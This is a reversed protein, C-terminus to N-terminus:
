RPLETNWGPAMVPPQGPNLGARELAERATANSNTSALGYPIGARGIADVADGIAENYCDCPRLDDSVLMSPRDGDDYDSTGPLYSGKETAISGWIGGASAIDSSSSSGGSSSSSSGVAGSSGGSSSGSSGSSSSASSSSSSAGVGGAPGGRAYYQDGSPDTTVIYAHYVPIGLFVSKFRVEIRCLGKRDFWSNPNGGVYGYTNLGGRLGIPDSEIYRGLTPDYDRFYNYHLGSEADAQQGPFRINASRAPASTESYTIGFPTQVRDWVVLKSADVLKQPTGLHDTMIYAIEGPPESEAVFRVADASVTGETSAEVSVSGSTGANFTFSGMSLWVGGNATQDIPVNTSGAAHNVTYSVATDRSADAMYKIFVEYDAAAPINPVWSVADPPGPPTPAPTEVVYIADASVSGNAQDSLDVTYEQSATYSYSGLLTWFGEGQTQDIIVPNAGTDDNVTYTADTARGAGPVWKVYIDHSGSTTPTFKWGATRAASASHLLRIADPNAQRGDTTESTVEIKNDGGPALLYPTGVLRWTGGNKYSYVIQNDVGEEHYINWPTVKSAQSRSPWWGYLDYYDYMPIAPTWGASNPVDEGPKVFIVADAVIRRGGARDSLEVRHNQGPTLNFTGLFNWILQDVRQDMTVTTEGDDHFVKYKANFAADPKTVWKTYLNYTDAEPVNLQWIARNPLAEVPVVYIADARVEKIGDGDDRLEIDHSSAADFTYVGLPVWTGCSYCGDWQNVTVISEGGTHHIRYSANGSLGPGNLPWRAFVEYDGTTPVDVPWVVGSTGDGTTKYLSDAGWVDPDGTSLVWGGTVIVGPDTNDVVISEPVIYNTSTLAYSSGIAFVSNWTAVTWTIPTTSFDADVNDIATAFPPVAFSGIARFNAGYDSRNTFTFWVGLDSYNADSNDVIISTPPNTGASREVFDVGEFNDGATSSPWDGIQSFGTDSNDIQQGGPPVTPIVRAHELYDAGEYGTGATEASWTGTIQAEADSNDVMIDTITGGGGSTDPIVQAIMLGDLYIYEEITAGAGSSSGLLEGSRGYHFHTIVGGVGLGEKAVREGQANYRYATDAIGGLAMETVRNNDNYTYDMDAASGKDDLSMNGAATYALGRTDSGDNVSLLRNSASDYSYTETTTTGDIVQRSTRNSVADYGYTLDGYLGTANTLRQLPDYTFAQNRAADLADTIATINGVADYGYTLDQVDTVGDGATISGLRYDQDYTYALTIGNGLDLDLVPGFPMYTIADAVTVPAALADTQTQIKSVRGLSDRTYSVIRGSPYTIESLNDALDYAYDTQYSVGDVVRTERAVNGRYDYFYSTSGTEDTLSTLRGIGHNGGTTDDYSYAVDEAPAAPFTKATVRNLLDYTYLTAVVRADTAQTRNGASDLQYITVGTDPSSQQIVDGFGNYVYSTVLGRQDTVSALNGPADFGSSSVGSAPNTTNILRNLADFANTTVGSRADTVSIANGDADYGYSTTQSAAGISQLMRGLEDFTATQTRVITSTSSKVVEQTRNGMADLTYEIREGLANSVAELRQAEDYEYNLVSGDPLTVSAIQGADDYAFTTTADGSAHQVTRTKLWGRPAYTLQSTVGNADVITLPLGRGDYAAINTVHGAANTASTRNGASDYTYATTDGTGAQPGDITAVLGAGAYTYAWSRTEGNTSYPVVHSTTDTVTRSLLNGSSDYTFDTTAGPAVIQTPLRFTAHWATTITQEEATGVAETRSTQLGRADYVYNAGTGSWDTESALFGNADYTYTKTAAPYSATAARDKQIIKPNGYIISFTYVVTDGLPGTVTAINNVKDYIITHREAGGFHETLNAWGDTDYGWTALRNGNEDIIGSLGSLLNPDDYLYQRFPNDSNDGPTEDPYTVKVLSGLIEPDNLVSYGYLYINGDPDTVSSLNGDGDYTFALTRGESDTIDDPYLNTGTYTLTQVYGTPKAISILRGTSDYTEAEDNRNTLEWGGSVATLELMIDPNAVWDSGSLTFTIPQGNPRNVTITSANPFELFADYTTTWGWGVSRASRILSNYYRIFELRNVGGSAYDVERQFKNGTGINCPNGVSEGGCGPTGTDPIKCGSKVFPDDDGGSACNPYTYIQDYSSGFQRVRAIYGKVDGNSKYYPRRDTIPGAHGADDIWSQWVAEFSECHSDCGNNPGNHWNAEVPESNLGFLFTIAISLFFIRFLFAVRALGSGRVM